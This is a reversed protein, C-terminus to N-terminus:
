FFDSELDLWFAPRVVNKSHSVYKYHLRGDAYVSAADNQSYGPSRLWWWGAPEGDATQSSDRTYAGQAIAYATPAIRSKINKLDDYTVGLYRNAEVYSLLFVQDKTNQGGNTKWQFYGQGLRNKVNTVLIASQEKASFAKNLFEDNLWARM